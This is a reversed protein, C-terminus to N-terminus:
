EWPTGTITSPTAQEALEADLNSEIDATDLESEVWAIVDAETLSDFAVYGESTSDPFFDCTGYASATNEGSTKSVRWHVVKVGGDINRELQEITFNM